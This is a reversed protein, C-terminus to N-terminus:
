VFISDWEKPVSTLVECGAATVLVDDEIRVGGWGPIYVGPEVTLVMNEELVDDSSSRVNPGEHIQLGLGHGLGHNFNPGYGMEELYGRAARDVDRSHAGPRIAAIARKQAQLVVTYIKKLQSEVKGAASKWALMRTLDSHYHQARAGWDLLLFSSEDATRATPPAHPLASRDGVAVITPFSTCEGGARRVFGEMADSLEKESDREVLMARFMAYAKEAVAVAHRLRDLELADKVMRLKEVLKKQASWELTPALEKLVELDAVTVSSSEFGVTRVGLKNLTEAVAQHINKDPPRIATELGPCEEAIQV